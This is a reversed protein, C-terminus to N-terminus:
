VRTWDSPNGILVVHPQLFAKILFKDTRNLLIGYEEKDLVSYNIARGYTKEAHEILESLVHMNPKGVILLDVQDPASVRGRAFDLSFLAFDIHGLLKRRDFIQRPLGSEKVTLSLLEFYLYHETNVVYFLRNGNPVSKLLGIAVLRDLERRVANIETGVRRVLDRVHLGDKPGLLLLNIIKVRVSSTFLQNLM